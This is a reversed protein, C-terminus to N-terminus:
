MYMGGNVHITQGTIYGADESALFAVAKAVDEPNGLRGLPIQRALNEKVEEPLRDTMDTRIYGPAVANVTINRSALERAATKTLGIMGAKSSAYNAQGPNGTEGVISTINIIRGFRQKMMPRAVAKTLLFVSKLNVALVDDWDSEKMRLLLQDRTIGANNVLIHIGGFQRLTEAVLAEVQRGDAVDARFPFAERGMKRIREVTESAAEENGSFNVAVHCGRSALELAIARGIGRSAGTVIAAKGELNM